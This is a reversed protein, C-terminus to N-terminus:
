FQALLGSLLQRTQLRSGASDGGLPSAVLFGLCCFCFGGVVFGPLLEGRGVCWSQQKGIRWGWVLLASRSPIELSMSAHGDAALGDGAAVSGKM